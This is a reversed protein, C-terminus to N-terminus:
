DALAADMTIEANLVKSVPCGTKTAEATEAFKAADGGPVKARVTLHAATIGFGGGDAPLITIEATTNIEDATMGASELNGSLAM